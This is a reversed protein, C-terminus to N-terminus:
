VSLRVSVRMRTVYLGKGERVGHKTQGAYSSGDTWSWLGEGHILDHDFEGEYVAGTPSILTGFGQRQGRHWEGSYVTGDAYRYEGVGHRKEDLLDGEYVEGGPSTLRYVGTV